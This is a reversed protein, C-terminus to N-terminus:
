KSLIAKVVGDYHKDLERLQDDLKSLREVIKDIEEKRQTLQLNLPGVKDKLEKEVYLEMYNDEESSEKNSDNGLTKKPSESAPNDFIQTVGSHFALTPSLNSLAGLEPSAEADFSM